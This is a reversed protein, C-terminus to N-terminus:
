EYEWRTSEMAQLTKRDYASLADRAALQRYIQLARHFHRRMMERHEQQQKGTSEAAIAKHMGAISNNVNALNRLCGNDKDDARVLETLTTAAKGSAKLAQDFQHQEQLADGLRTLATGLDRKFRRNKAEKVALSELISVARKLYDISEASRGVNKLTVGVRSCAKALEQKAGLNAPDNLTIKEALALTKFAFENSTPNDIEEYIGSSTLYTKCLGSALTADEPHTTVLNEYIERAKAMEAEGDKQHNEWSLAFGLERHSNALLTLVDGRDPFRKRLNEVSAIAKKLYPIASAYSENMALTSGVDHNTRALALRIENADPNEDLLETYITLARESNKLAEAPEGTEWYIDGLMKYNSALQSREELGRPNKKLLRRRMANAKQYSVLADSLATLNANTPNGQLDGVKEYAAALERQLSKDNGAEAALSDLYKLSQWLIVQRAETSGPLREIKPAIDLLLANALSRVDGFRREARNKERLTGVLGAIIAVVIIATAMGGVKHRQVFKSSRYSWTDKRAVVPLGVLHRRIDEAFQAVSAYRRSPEKRMAMLVINDLDGRLATACSKLNRNALQFSASRVATSPKTPEEECIVRALEDSRTTKLRYPRQGTLLGYLLVGLSYVDSATTIKEGKIQEPSAYEPTLAKMETITRTLALSPAPDLLKAIGFDLLKPIGHQTVLINGPKLDRHIVLSQHAYHLASCVMRFIELREVNSLKKGDCFEDIPVGDVYDMVFYPLGDETTGGDLLKAINPHDLTALIQREHRFRRRVEHLDFGYTILKIAVQKRYQEDAREALYVAGMGGRGIRRVLRYQGIQKGKFPDVEIHQLAEAAFATPPAEIFDRASEQQGLLSEVEARLVADGSCAGDLFAGRENPELDLASTVVELVKEPQM